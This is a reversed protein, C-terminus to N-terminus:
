GIKDTRASCDSVEISISKSSEGVEPRIRVHTVGRGRGLKTQDISLAGDLGLAETLTLNCKIVVM